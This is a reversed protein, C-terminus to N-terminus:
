KVLEPKVEMGTRVKLMAKTVYRSKADLGSLVVRMSDRYIPGVEVPTYVIRNSDNVVYLYKGAQDTSLASDKVLIADKISKYPISVKVFMGPRLEDYKNDIDCKLQLTGTSANLAPSVYILDGFYKHHVSDAFELPINKLNSSNIEGSESIMGPMNEDDVSFVGTVHDVKYITTLTVPSAEGSVYNGVDMSTAGTMGSIPATITCYSLNTRATELAAQASKINAQAQLYDSEAQSVEMKSVADSELAKKVAEYHDKAYEYSSKASALSAVAQQYADRYKNDEITYLVQGKTVFTGDKFNHSQLLGNVRGVVEVQAAANIQGPYTNTLTVSDVEPYAVSITEEGTMDTKSHKSGCSVSLIGLATIGIILHPKM